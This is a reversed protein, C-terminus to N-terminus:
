SLWEAPNVPEGDVLVMFHLCPGTVKGSMGVAGIAQGATVIDGVQVTTQSLHSYRTTVRRGDATQGHDICIYQGHGGNYGGTAVETVVGGAAAVVPAGVEAHIDLGNHLEGWRYGYSATIERSGPCPWGLTAATSAPPLPQQGPAQEASNQTTPQTTPQTTSQTTTQTTTSPTTPQTTPQPDSTPPTVPEAAATSGALLGGGCVFGVILLGALMVSLAVVAKSRKKQEKVMHFRRKIVRKSGLMSTTLPPESGGATSLLYLLTHLYRVTEEKGRHKVAALDCSIECETQMQRHILYVAPNFWHLCKVILAFWKVWLDGRRLHTMEHALIHGMQEETLPLDPLFLTPHILGMLLPSSISEGRRVAVARRTYQGLQPCNVPRTHRYMQRCRLAYRIVKVAFLLVAGACWLLALLHETPIGNAAPRGAPLQTAAGTPAFVTTPYLITSVAPPLTVAEPLRIRVPLVLVVLVAVWVYYHWGASFHRRTFPGALWLVAALATAALSTVVMAGFAHELM